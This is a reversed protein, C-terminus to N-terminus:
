LVAEGSTTNSAWVRMCDPWASRDRRDVASNVKPFFNRTKESQLLLDLAQKIEGAEIQRPEGALELEERVAPCIAEPVYSITKWRWGRCFSWRSGKARSRAAWCFFDPAEKPSEGSM